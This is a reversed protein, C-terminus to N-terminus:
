HNRVRESVKSGVIMVVGTIASSSLLWFLTSVVFAFDKDITNSNIALYFNFCIVPFSFTVIELVLLSLFSNATEVVQCLNDHQRRLAAISLSNSYPPSMRKYLDDFLAELIFCTSCFLAFPFLWVGCSFTLFVLSTVRFIFWRNWPFANGINKKLVIDTAFAGFIAAIVVLSFIILYVRSRSKARKLCPRVTDLSIVKRIFAEFRSPRYAKSPLVFLCTTGLLAVLLCWCIFMVHRFIDGELLFSVVTMVVNFWFGSVVIGCYCLSIYSARRPRSFQMETYPFTDGFYVGSLKLLTLVPRYVDGLAQLLEEKATNANETAEVFSGEDNVSKASLTSEDDCISVVCSEKPSVRSAM